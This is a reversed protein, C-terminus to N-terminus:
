KLSSNLPIHKQLQLHKQLVHIHVDFVVRSCPLLDSERVGIFVEVFVHPNTCYICTHVGTEDMVSEFECVSVCVCVSESECECERM